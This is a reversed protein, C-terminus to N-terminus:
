LKEAPNGDAAPADNSPAPVDDDSEITKHLAKAKKIEVDAAM